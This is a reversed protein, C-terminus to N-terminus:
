GREVQEATERSKGRLKDGRMSRQVRSFQGTAVAWSFTVSDFRENDAEFEKVFPTYLEDYWYDYLEKAEM